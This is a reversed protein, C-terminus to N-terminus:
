AATVRARRRLRRRRALAGAITWAAAAAGVGIADALLDGWSGDRDVVKAQLVEIVGGLVVISVTVAVGTRVIVARRQPRRGPRWVLSLLVLGTLVAYAGAHRIKDWAVDASPDDPILSFVVVLVSWVGTAGYLARELLVAPGRRVPRAPTTSAPHSAPASPSTPTASVPRRRYRGGAVGGSRRVPGITRFWAPRDLRAGLRENPTSVQEVM